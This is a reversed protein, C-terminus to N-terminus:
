MGEPWARVWIRITRDCDSLQAALSDDGDGIYWDFGGLKIPDSTAPEMGYAGPGSEYVWYKSFVAMVGKTDDWRSLKDRCMEWQEQTIRVTTICIIINRGLQDLTTECDLSGLWPDNTELAAKVADNLHSLRM